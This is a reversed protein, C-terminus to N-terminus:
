TGVARPPVQLVGTTTEFLVGTRGLMTLVAIFETDSNIPVPVPRGPQLWITIRYRNTKPEWDAEYSLVPIFPM